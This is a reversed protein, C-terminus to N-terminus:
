GKGKKSLKTIHWDRFMTVKLSVFTKIYDEVPMFFIGDNAAVM